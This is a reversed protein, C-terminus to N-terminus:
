SCVFYPVARPLSSLVLVGAFMIPGMEVRLRQPLRTTDIRASVRDRMGVRVNDGLKIRTRPLASQQSLSSRFWLTSNSLHM